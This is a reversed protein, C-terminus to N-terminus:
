QLTAALELIDRRVMDRTTFMIDHFDPISTDPHFHRIMAETFGFELHELKEYYDATAFNYGYETSGPVILEFLEWGKMRDTEMRHEHMPRAVEDEFMKYEYERGLKVAMYNMSIYRSPKVAENQFVSNDIRWLESHNPILWISRNNEITSAEGESILLGEIQSPVDEFNSLHDSITIAVYNYFSNQAGPYTVRYLYWNKIYGNEKRARQVPIVMEAIQEDFVQTQEPDVQIYDIHMYAGQDSQAISVASTLFILLFASGYIIEKQRM